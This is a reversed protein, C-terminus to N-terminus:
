CLSSSCRARTLRPIPRQKPLDKKKNRLTCAGTQLSFKAQFKFQIKQAFPRKKDLVCMFIAWQIAVNCSHWEEQSVAASSFLVPFLLSSLSARTDRHNMPPVAQGLRASFLIRQWRLIYCLLPFHGPVFFSSCSPLVQLSQHKISFAALTNQLTSRLSEAESRSSRPM